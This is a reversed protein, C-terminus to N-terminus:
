ILDFMEMFRDAFSYNDSNTGRQGELMEFLPRIASRITAEDNRVSLSLVNSIGVVFAVIGQQDDRTATLSAKRGRITQSTTIM